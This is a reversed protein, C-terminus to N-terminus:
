ITRAPRATWAQARRAADASAAQTLPPTPLRPPACVAGKAQAAETLFFGTGPQAAALPLAGLVAALLAM